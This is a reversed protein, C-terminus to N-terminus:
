STGGRLLQVTAGTATRVALHDCRGAPEVELSAARRVDAVMRAPEPQGGIPWAPWAWVRGTGRELVAPTATPRCAWRGLVVAAPRLGLDWRGGATTLVGAPAALPRCGLDVAPCSTGGGSGGGVRAAAAALVIVVALAGAFRGWGVQVRVPTLLGAVGAWRPGGAAGPAPSPAAASPPTGPLRGGLRPDALRRAVEAAGAGRRCRTLARRLARGDDGTRAALDTLLGLLAAVDGPRAAPDTSAAGTGCWVPRGDADLLLHEARVGGHAWGLSHLDALTTAAVAGLGAVEAASAPPDAAIPPGVYRTALLLDPAPVVEVVGPHRLAALVRRRGALDAEDTCRRVWCEVGGVVERM